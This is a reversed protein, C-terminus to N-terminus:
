AKFQLELKYKGLLEEGSYLEYKAELQGSTENKRIFDYALCKANLLIVGYATKYKAGLLEGNKLKLQLSMNTQQRTLLLEDQRIKLTTKAENNSENYRLYLTEDKQTLEGVEALEFEELENNQEQVTKLDINVPVQKLM